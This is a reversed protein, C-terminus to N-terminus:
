RLSTRSEAGTQKHSACADFPLEGGATVNDGITKGIPSVRPQSTAQELLKPM